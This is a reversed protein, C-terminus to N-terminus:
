VNTFGISYTVQYEQIGDDRRIRRLGTRMLAGSLEVPRWGHFEQHIKEIIEWIKWANDKQSQPAHFSTNSLKLDAIIFTITGEGTQRHIPNANNDKGINSFILNTIDILGCPFKAPPNPSYSDLQGWDEDISKLESVNRMKAQVNELFAKM